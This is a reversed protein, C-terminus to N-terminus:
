CLQFMHECFSETMRALHEEMDLDAMMRATKVLKRLEAAGINSPNTAYRQAHDLAAHADYTHTATDTQVMPILVNEM